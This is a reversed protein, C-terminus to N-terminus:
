HVRFEEGPQSALLKEGSSRPSRKCKRRGGRGGKRGLVTRALGGKGSQGMERNVLHGGHGQKRKPLKSNGRGVKGGERVNEEELPV